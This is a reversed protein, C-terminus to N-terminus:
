SLVDKVKRAKARCQDVFADWNDWPLDGAQKVWGFAVIYTINCLTPDAGLQKIL